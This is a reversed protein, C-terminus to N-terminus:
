IFYHLLVICHKGVKRTELLGRYKISYQFYGLEFKVQIKLFTLLLFTKEIAKNRM